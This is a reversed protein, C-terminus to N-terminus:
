SALWEKIKSKVDAYKSNAIDKDLDHEFMGLYQFANWFAKYPDFQIIPTKEIIVTPATWLELLDVGGPNNRDDEVAVFVNRYYKRFTINWSNGDSNFFKIEKYPINNETAGTSIKANM